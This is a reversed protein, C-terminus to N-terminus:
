RFRVFFQVFVTQLEYQKMQDLRLFKFHTLFVLQLM